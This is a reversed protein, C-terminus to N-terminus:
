GSQPLAERRTRRPKSGWPKGRRQMQRVAVFNPYVCAARPTASYCGVHSAAHSSGGAGEPPRFNQAFFDAVALLPAPSSRDGCSPMRARAAQEQFDLAIARREREGSAAKYTTQLKRVSKKSVFAGELLEHHRRARFTGERLHQELTKAPRATLGASSECIVARSARM